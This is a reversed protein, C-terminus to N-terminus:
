QQAHGAGGAEKRSNLGWWGKDLELGQPRDEGRARGHATMRVGPTKAGSPKM